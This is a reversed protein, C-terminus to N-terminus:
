LVSDHVQLLLRGQKGGVYRSMVVNVRLRPVTWELIYNELILNKPLDQLNSVVICHAIPKQLWLV